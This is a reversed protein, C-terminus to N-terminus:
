ADTEDSTTQPVDSVQEPMKVEFPLGREIICRALFMRLAAPMDLGLTEFIKIVEAKMEEDIRFQILAQKNM